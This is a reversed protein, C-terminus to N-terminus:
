SKGQWNVKVLMGCYVLFDKLALELVVADLRGDCVM